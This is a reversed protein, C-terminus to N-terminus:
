VQGANNEHVISWQKARNIRLVIRTQNKQQRYSDPGWNTCVSKLHGIQVKGSLIFIGRKVAGLLDKYHQKNTNQKTL